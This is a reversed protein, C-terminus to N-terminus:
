TRVEFARGAHSWYMAAVDSCALWMFGKSRVLRKLASRLPTNVATAATATTATATASATTKKSGAAAESLALANDKGVPMQLVYIMLAFCLTFDIYATVTDADHQTHSRSLYLSMLVYVSLAVSKSCRFRRQVLLKM